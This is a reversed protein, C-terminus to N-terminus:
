SVLSLHHVYENVMSANSKIPEFEDLNWIRQGGIHEECAIMRGMDRLHDHMTLMEDSDIRVLSRDMLNLLALDANGDDCDWIKLAKEEQMGEKLVDRCFFCAIDLFMNKEEKELNDYSIRLTRWIRENDWSGGLCQGRQLRRLAQQWVRLRKVGCLYSGLVELSLPLGGCAEIVKNAVEEIQPGQPQQQVFAHKYFLEKAQDEDLLEMDMKGNHSSCLTKLVQWNRTTAIIKSGNAFVWTSSVLGQLQEQSAVDDFVVFVKKREFIEQLYKLGEETTNIHRKCKLDDLLQRQIDLINKSDRMNAVFSTAEFGQHVCHLIAKTLTTKGSGGMGVIGLIQNSELQFLVKSM